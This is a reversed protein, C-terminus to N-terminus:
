KIRDKYKEMLYGVAKIPTLNHLFCIFSIASGGKQCSFCFFTDKSRSVMLNGIKKKHEFLNQDECFPCCGRYYIRYHMPDLNVDSNLVIELLTVHKYLKALQEEVLPTLESM